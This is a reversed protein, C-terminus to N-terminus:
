SVEDERPKKLIGRLQQDPVNLKKRKAVVSHSSAEYRSESGDGISKYGDFWDPYAVISPGNSLKELLRVDRGSRVVNSCGSSPRVKEQNWLKVYKSISLSRLPKVLSHKTNANPRPTIEIPERRKVSNLNSGDKETFGVCERVCQSKKTESTPLPRSKCLIKSSSNSAINFNGENARGAFCHTKLAKKPTDYEKEVCYKERQQRRSQNSRSRRIDDSFSNCYDLKLALNCIKLLENSVLPDNEVECQNRTLFAVKFWFFNFAPLPFCFISNEQEWKCM